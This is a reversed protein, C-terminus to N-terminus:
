HPPKTSGGRLTILPPGIIPAAILSPPIGIEFPVVCMVKKDASSTFSLSRRSQIRQASHKFTQGTLKCGIKILLAYSRPSIAAAFSNPAISQISHPLQENMQGDLIGNSSFIRLAFCDIRSISAQAM